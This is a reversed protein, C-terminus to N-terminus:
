ILATERHYGLPLAVSELVSSLIYQPLKIFPVNLLFIHLLAGPDFIGYGFWWIDNSDTSYKAYRFLLEIKVCQNEVWLLIALFKSYGLKFSKYQITIIGMTQEWSEISICLSKYLWLLLLIKKEDYSARSSCTFLASEVM